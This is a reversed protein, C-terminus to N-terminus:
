YAFNKRYYYSVRDYLAASESASINTRHVVSEEKMIDSTFQMYENGSYGCLEFVKNMLFSVSITEGEGQFDNGTLAKAADNAIILYRTSYYGLFGEETSTDINIGYSGYVKGNNGLWPKHDGFFVLVLPEETALMENVFTYLYETTLKQANLYNNLIYQEEKTVHDCEIYTEDFNAVSDSYPGHGQYTISFNFYPKTKDRSTYLEKLLPFFGGDWTIDSNTRERFFNETFYYNEFGLNKNINERNYFWAYCPHAGEVTYGNERLYWMYSNSASTFNDMREFPMGTLFERESIRTDGAFIDTVLTGSYGIKELERYKAYIDETFTLEEFRSFDNYAELMVSVINVAKDSPIGKDTYAALVEKAESESYGEPPFDLADKVSYLFPYVFGKSVYRQTDSWENIYTNNATKQDYILQSTYCPAIAASLILLIVAASIRKVIGDVRGRAFVALLVTCVAFIAIYAIIRKDIFLDYSDLMNTAESALTMDEAILCDGRLAIKYYNILTFGMVFMNTFVFSWVASNSFLYLLAAIIVPPVLNLVAIYPNELYSLFMQYSFQSTAFYMSCLGCVIGGLIAAIFAFVIQGPSRYKERKDTKIAFM